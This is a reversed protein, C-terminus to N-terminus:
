GRTSWTPSSRTMICCTWISSRTSPPPPFSREVRPGSLPTLEVQVGTLAQWGAEIAVKGPEYEDPSAKLELADARVLAEGPKDPQTPSSWNTAYLKSDTEQARTLSPFSLTFVGVTLMLRKADSYRM